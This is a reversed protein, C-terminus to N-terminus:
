KRRSQKYIDTDLIITVPGDNDIRVAMDAGFVGTKVDGVGNERLQEAYYEYLARAEVPQASSAFSPRNGKRCDACLTFQSIVLASGGVDTISLNMKENEDEFVRLKATKSALLEAEAKTDGEVVGLLINFGRCTEAILEGGVSVSSYTVRQIVARM